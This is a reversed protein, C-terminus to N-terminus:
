ECKYEGIQALAKKYTDYDNITDIVMSLRTFDETLSEVKAKDYDNVNVNLTLSFDSVGGYMVVSVGNIGDYAVAENINSASTYTDVNEINTKYTLSIREILNDKIEFRYTSTETDKNLTCTLSKTESNVIPIYPEDDILLLDQNFYGIIGLGALLIIAFSWIIILRINM